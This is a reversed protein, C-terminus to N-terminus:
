LLYCKDSTHDCLGMVQGLEVHCTPDCGRTGLNHTARPRMATVVLIGTKSFPNSPRKNRAVDHTSCLFECKVRQRMVHRPHGGETFAM